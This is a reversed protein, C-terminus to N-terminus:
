LRKVTSCRKKEFMHRRADAFNDFKQAAIYQFNVQKETPHKEANEDSLSQFSSANLCDLNDAVVIYRAAM